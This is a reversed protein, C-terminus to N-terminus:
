VRSLLAASTKRAVERSAESVCVENKESKGGRDSM